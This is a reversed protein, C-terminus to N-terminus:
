KKKKGFVFKIIVPVTTVFVIGIVIIELHKKLDLGFKQLIWKQLFFGGLTMSGVWAFSGLINYFFFKTKNMGVIGAVIPAFTRIFPLFRGGVIAGAGYKEYFSSAQHLYKKKFFSNDKWQYMTVGVKQGFWYGVFNGLIGATSILIILILLCFLYNDTPVYEQIINVAYIGSIFLLSDGPLFFGAFLGTEAFVVFLILWLGGHEIYFQPQLLQTWVFPQVLTDLIM